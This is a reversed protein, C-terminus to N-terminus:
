RTALLWHGITARVANIGALCAFAMGPGLTGGAGGYLGPIVGREFDAEHRLDHRRRSKILYTGLGLLFATLPSARFLLIVTQTLRVAGHNRAM